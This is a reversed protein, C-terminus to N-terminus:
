SKFQRVVARFEDPLAATSASFSRCENRAALTVARGFKQLTSVKWGQGPNGVIRNGAAKNGGLSGDFRYAVKSAEVVNNHVNNSLLEGSL